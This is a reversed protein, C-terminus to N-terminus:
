FPIGHGGRRGQFCCRGTPPSCPSCWLSHAALWDLPSHPGAGQMGAPSTTGAARDLERCPGISDWFGPVLPCEPGVLSMTAKGSRRPAAVAGVM